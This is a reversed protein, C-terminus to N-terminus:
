YKLRRSGRKKTIKLYVKEAGTLEKYAKHVQAKKGCEFTLLDNQSYPYIPDFRINSKFLFFPM